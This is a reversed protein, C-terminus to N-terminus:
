HQQTIKSTNQSELLFQFVTGNNLLQMQRRFEQYIVSQETVNEWLKVYATSSTQGKTQFAIGICELYIEGHKILVFAREINLESYSGVYIDKYLASTYSTASKQQKRMM